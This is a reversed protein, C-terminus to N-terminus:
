NMCFLSVHNVHYNRRLRGLAETCVPRKRCLPVPADCPFTTTWRTFPPPLTPWTPPKIASPTAAVPALDLSPGQRRPAPGTTPDHVANPKRGLHLGLFPDPAVAQACTNAARYITKDRPSCRHALLCKLGMERGGAPRFVREPFPNGKRRGLPLMRDQEDVTDAVVAGGGASLPNTDMGITDM